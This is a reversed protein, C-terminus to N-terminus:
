NELVRFEVKISTTQSYKKKRKVERGWLMAKKFDSMFKGILHHQHLTMAFPESYTVAETLAQRELASHAFNM